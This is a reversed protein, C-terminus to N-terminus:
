LRNHNMMKMVEAFAGPVSSNHKMNGFYQLVKSEGLYKLFPTSTRMAYHNVYQLIVDYYVHEFELQVIMNVKTFTYIQKNAWNASAISYVLQM